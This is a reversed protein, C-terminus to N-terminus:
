KKKLFHADYRKYRLRGGRIMFRVTGLIITIETCVTFQKGRVHRQPFEQVLLLNLYVKPLTVAKVIRKNALMRNTVEPRCNRIGFYFRSKVIIIPVM